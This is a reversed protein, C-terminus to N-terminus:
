PSGTGTSIATTPASTPAPSSIPAGPSTTNPLYYGFFLFANVAVVVVLVV